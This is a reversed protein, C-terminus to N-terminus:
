TQHLSEDSFYLSPSSSSSRLHWFIGNWCKWFLLASSKAKFHDTESLFGVGFKFVVAVVVLFFQPFIVKSLKTCWTNFPIMMKAWVWQKPWIFIIENWKTDYRCVCARFYDQPKPCLKVETGTLWLVLFAMRQGTKSFICSSPFHSFVSVLLLFSYLVAPMDLLLNSLTLSTHSREPPIPFWWLVQSGGRTM